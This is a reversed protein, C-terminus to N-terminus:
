TKASIMKRFFYAVPCWQGFNSKNLDNPSANSDLNLESLVGDIVYSSVDTKIQIYCDSNFHRLIPAKIFAQRLYNFAKKANFTLFIPEGIAKINSVCTLKKFKENKFKSSDVVTENTKNDGGEVVENNGIRFARPGM